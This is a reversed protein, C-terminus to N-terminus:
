SRILFFLAVIAAAGLTVLAPQLVSEWFGEEPAVIEAPRVRFESLGEDVIFKFEVQPKPPNLFLLWGGIWHEEKLGMRTAIHNVYFVAKPSSTTRQDVIYNSSTDAVVSVQQMSLGHTYAVSDLGLLIASKLSTATMQGLAVESFLLCFLIISIQGRGSM